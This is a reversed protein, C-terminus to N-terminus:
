GTLNLPKSQLVFYLKTDRSLSGSESIKMDIVLVKLPGQPVKALVHCEVSIMQLLAIQYLSWINLFTFQLFFLYYDMDQMKCITCFLDKALNTRTKHLKLILVGWTTLFGYLVLLFNWTQFTWYLFM